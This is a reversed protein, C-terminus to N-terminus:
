HILDSLLRKRIATTNEHVGCRTLGILDSAGHPDKDLHYTYVLYYEQGVILHERPSIRIGM